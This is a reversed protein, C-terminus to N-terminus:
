SPLRRRLDGHLARLLDTRANVADTVQDAGALPFAVRVLAGDTRRHALRNWILRARYGHDSAVSRDQLQYWYVIARREGASRMTVLNVPIRGTEVPVNVIRETLDTVGHPPFVLQRAVARRGEVQDPYYDVAVWTVQDGREYTRLLHASAQRDPALPGSPVRSVGQWGALSLPVSVLSPSAQGDSGRALTLLLGGAAAILVLATLSSRALRSM